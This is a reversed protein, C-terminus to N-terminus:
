QSAELNLQRLVEVAWDRVHQDADKKYPVIAPIIDRNGLKALVKLLGDAKFAKHALLPDGSRILQILTDFARPDETIAVALRATEGTTGTKGLLELMAPIIDM